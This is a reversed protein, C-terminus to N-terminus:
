DWYNAQEHRLENTEQIADEIDGADVNHKDALENIDAIPASYFEELARSTREREDFYREIAASPNM